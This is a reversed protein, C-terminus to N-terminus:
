NTFTVNGQEAYIAELFQPSDTRQKILEAITTDTIVFYFNCMEMLVSLMFYM